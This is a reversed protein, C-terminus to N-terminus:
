QPATRGLGGVRRPEGLYTAVQKAIRVTTTDRSLVDPKGPLDDDV